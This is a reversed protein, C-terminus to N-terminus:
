AVHGAEEEPLKGFFGANYVLVPKDFFSFLQQTIFLFSDNVYLFKVAEGQAKVAERQAKVAERQAKVAERQAKM